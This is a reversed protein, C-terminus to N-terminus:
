PQRCRGASCTMPVDQTQCCPGSDPACPFGPQSCAPPYGSGYWGFFGALVWPEGGGYQSVWVPVLGESQGPVVVTFSCTTDGGQYLDGSSGVRVLYYLAGVYFPFGEVHLEVDQGAPGSTPSIKL